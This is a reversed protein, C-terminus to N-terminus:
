QMAIIDPQDRRLRFLFNDGSAHASRELVVERRLEGRPKGIRQGLSADPQIKYRWAITGAGHFGSKFPELAASGASDSQGDLNSKELRKELRALDFKEFQFGMDMAISGIVRDTTWCRSLEITFSIPSAM